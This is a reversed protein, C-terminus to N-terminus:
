SSSYSRGMARNVAGVIIVVTCNKNMAELNKGGIGRVPPVPLLSGRKGTSLRWYENERPRESLCPAQLLKIIYNIAEKLVNIQRTNLFPKIAL